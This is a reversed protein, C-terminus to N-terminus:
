TDIFLGDDFSIARDQEALALKAPRRAVTEEVKAQAQTPKGGQLVRGILFHERSPHGSISVLCNPLQRIPDSFPSSAGSALLRRAFIATKLRTRDPIQKEAEFNESTLDKRLHRLV